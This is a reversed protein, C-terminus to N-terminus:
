DAKKRKGAGPRSGGHSPTDDTVVYGRQRAYAVLAARVIDAETCADQAAMQRVVDRLNDSMVMLFRKTKVM